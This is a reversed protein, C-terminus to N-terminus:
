PRAAAFTMTGSSSSYYILLSGDQLLFANAYELYTSYQRALSTLPCTAADWNILFSINAGDVQYAGAGSSCDSRAVVSGDDALTLTYLSPDPVAIPSASGQDIQLLQWTTGTLAVAEADTSAAEGASSAGATAAELTSTVVVGPSAGATAEVSAQLTLGSSGFLEQNYEVAVLQGQERVFTLSEAVALQTGDALRDITVSATGDPNETWAGELIQEDVFEGAGAGAPRSSFVMSADGNPHLTLTVALESGNSPPVSGTYVGAIEAIPIATATLLAPAEIEQVTATAEEEAGALEPCTVSGVEDVAARVAAASATVSAAAEAITDRNSIAGITQELNKWTNEISEVRVETLNEASRTVQQWADAVEERAQNVEGVTNDPTIQELQKVSDDFAQLSACFEATAEEPTQSACGALALLALAALILILTKM